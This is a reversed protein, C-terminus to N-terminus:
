ISIHQGDQDEGEMASAEPLVDVIDDIGCNVSRCIKILVDMSVTENKSLKSLTSASIGAQKGFQTKKLGKDILLKFLKNYCVDM